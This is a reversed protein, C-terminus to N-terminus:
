KQLRQKLDALDDINYGRAELEDAQLSGESSLATNTEAADECAAVYFKLLKRDAMRQYPHAMKTDLVKDEEAILENLRDVLIQVDPDATM